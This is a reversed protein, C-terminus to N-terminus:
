MTIYHPFRRTADIYALLPKRNKTNGLLNRLSLIGKTNRRLHDRQTIYQRCSFLFHSVTERCRCTPCNPSDVAKIRYLFFNLAIHGSRLQALLSTHRRNTEVLVGPARCRPTQGDITTAFKQSRPASEWEKVWEKQMKKKAAAKVASVSTPMSKSFFVIQSRNKCPAERGESAAKAADDALENGPNDSHGPVWMLHIRLRPRAKLISRLQRHFEEVLYQGPKPAPKAISTIASQNDLLITSSTIRPTNRIIDLAIITGTLEGEYVTHESDSGLYVRRIEGGVEPM